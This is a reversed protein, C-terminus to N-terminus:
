NPRPGKTKRQTLNDEPPKGPFPIGWAVLSAVIEVIANWLRAAVAIGAAAPGVYPTLLGILVLERVGVGGPSFVALYGLQYAIVFAIMMPILEVSGAGAIAKVFLWFSLGYAMWCVAYGIAVEIAVRGSLRFNLQKRRFVRLIVNLAALTHGPVFVLAVSAAVLLIGGILVGAGITRQVDAQLIGPQILLGIASVSFASSLALVLAVVWSTVSVQEPIGLRKAFYAMGFVPWIKGPLYRGLNTIYAIKFGHSASVQYGFGQILRCWVFAFLWLTVFHMAISLLLWGPRLQWDFEVVKEWHVVLHQGALVVAAIALGYKAIRFLVTKWTAAAKQAPPNIDRTTSGNETM